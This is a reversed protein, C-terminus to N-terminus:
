YNIVLCFIYIPLEVVLFGLFAATILLSKFLETYYETRSLSLELTSISSFLVAYYLAIM